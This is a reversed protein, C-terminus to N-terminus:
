FWGDFRSKIQKGYKKKEEKSWRIKTLVTIASGLRALAQTKRKELSPGTKQGRGTNIDILDRVDLATMVKGNLQDSVMEWTDLRKQPTREENVYWHGDKEEWVKIKLIERCIAESPPPLVKDGIPSEELTLLFSAASVLRNLHAKEYSWKIKGYAEFSFYDDVWLDGEKISLLSLSVLEYGQRGLDLGKEIDAEYSKLVDM